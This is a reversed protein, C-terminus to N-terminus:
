DEDSVGPVTIKEYPKRPVDECAENYIALDGGLAVFKDPNFKKHVSHVDKIKFGEIDISSSGTSERLERIRGKHKDMAHKIPKLQMALEGYARLETLLKRRIDPKITIDTTTTAKAQPAAKQVPRAATRMTAM